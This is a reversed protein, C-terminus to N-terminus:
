RRARHTRHNGVPLRPENSTNFSFSPPLSNLMTRHQIHDEAIDYTGWNSKYRPVESPVKDEWRDPELMAVRHTISSRGSRWIKKWAARRPSCIRRSGNLSRGLIGPPSVLVRAQFFIFSHVFMCVYINCNHNTIDTYVYNVFTDRSCSVVESSRRRM